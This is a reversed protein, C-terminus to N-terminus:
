PDLLLVQFSQIRQQTALQDTDLCHSRPHTTITTVMALYPYDEVLDRLYAMEEELNDAWVERIYNSDNAHM